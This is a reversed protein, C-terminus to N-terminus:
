DEGGKYMAIKWGGAFGLHGEQEAILGRVSRELLILITRRPVMSHLVKGIVDDDDKRSQKVHWAQVHKTM